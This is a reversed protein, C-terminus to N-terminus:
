GEERRGEMGAEAGAEGGAYVKEEKAQIRRDNGIIILEASAIEGRKRRGDRGGERPKRSKSM